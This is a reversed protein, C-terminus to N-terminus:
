HITRQWVRTRRESAVIDGGSGKAAALSAASIAGEGECRRKEQLHM